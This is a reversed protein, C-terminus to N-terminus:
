QLLAIDAVNLFLERLQKLMLLRNERRPKDEAMVMVHEFFNDVPQRLGALESLVETYKGKESFSIVVLSKESLALVLAREADHEFLKEDISKVGIESNSKALINSVRKNAISLSEAEPLLKFNQVAQIRRDIDYPISINLAAVSAFVDPTIGQEQYWPKLRELMFALVQKATDNNELKDQYGSVAFQILESIDLNIKKEILIRLAGLAARRLAFPDKDGTPAQNIGFVGVLTDIRDSLALVCGLKTKPLADGSFRPMYQENLAKAIADKEGDHLAYYYGMIGQLEPFEGVMQTTLDTKALLSAREADAPNEQILKAIHAALLSVRKAKDYVSGLKAQFIITKLQEVRDILKHHKDTAFFFAADSLRARLVRENGAIMRKVDRSEINSITVFNPLLKGNQDIVPFYRQHDQMASILAEQPVSLFAKDFSGCVAVPWEVLGTVEDLLNEDVQVRADTPLTASTPISFVEKTQLRILEKRKAFDAIVFKKELIKEYRSPSSVTHEGKSLFRHGRTLRGAECGLIESKIVDNGYLLMVSHVPRVFEVSGSGWRMRKPIPLAALAQQVIAPLLEQAKKGSVAQQYGVWSGQATKLTKLQEPAVGCSRAFGLCAQTPNGEKDFAAELAPGKREVLTDAQKAAVKKVLVALRRPTAFFQADKFGLESKDLRTKIEALFCDALRHLAKPPLEETQIEVLFDHSTKVAQPM